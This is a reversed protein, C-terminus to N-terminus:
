EVQGDDAVNFDRVMIDGGEAQGHGGSGVAADFLARDETVEEGRIGEGVPGDDVLADRVGEVGVFGHEANIEDHGHEDEEIFDEDDIAVVVTAGVFFGITLEGEFEEHIQRKAVQRCNDNEFFIAANRDSRFPIGRTVVGPVM